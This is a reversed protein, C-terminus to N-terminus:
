RDTLQVGNTVVLAGIDDPVPDGKSVDVDTVDYSKELAGRVANYNANEEPRGTRALFGIKLVKKAAMKVIATTLDYELNNTNQVVPITEHKDLYLLAIGMYANVSQAQDREVVQVQVQPVGMGEALEKENANTEPDVFRVKVRRGGYRKYEALVDRVQDETAAFQPPLKQSFYANITLNDQLEEVADKTAQTLTYRKDATLDLRFFIWGAIVNILVIIGLVLLAEGVVQSHQRMKRSVVAAGGGRTRRPRREKKERKAM